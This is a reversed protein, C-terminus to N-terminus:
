RKKKAGKLAANIRNAAKALAVFLVEQCRKLVLAADRRFALSTESRAGLTM